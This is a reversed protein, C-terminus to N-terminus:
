QGYRPFGSCDAQLSWGLQPRTIDGSAARRAGGGDRWMSGAILAALAVFWITARVRGLMQRPVLTQPIASGTIIAFPAARTRRLSATRDASECSLRTAFAALGNGAALVFLRRDAAVVRAGKSRMTTSAAAIVASRPARTPSKSEPAATHATQSQSRCQCSSPRRRKVSFGVDRITHDPPEPPGKERQRPQVSM